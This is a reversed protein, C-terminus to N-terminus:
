GNVVLEILSTLRGDTISDDWTECGRQIIMERLWKLAGTLNSLGFNPDGGNYCRVVDFAVLLADAARDCGPPVIRPLFSSVYIDRAMASEEDNQGLLNELTASIQTADTTNLDFHRPYSGTATALLDMLRELVAAHPEDDDQAVEARAEMHGVLLDTQEQDQLVVWHSM